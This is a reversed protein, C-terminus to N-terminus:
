VMILLVILLIAVLIFLILHLIIKGIWNDPLTSLKSSIVYLLFSVLFYMFLILTVVWWYFYEILAWCVIMYITYFITYCISGWAPTTGREYMNGTTWFSVKYFLQGFITAEFFLLILRVSIEYMWRPLGFQVVSLRMISEFPETIIMPLILVRFIMGVLAAVKYPWNKENIGRFFYFVGKFIKIIAGIM